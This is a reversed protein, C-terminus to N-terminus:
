YGSDELFRPQASDYRNRETNRQVHEILYTNLILLFYPFIM